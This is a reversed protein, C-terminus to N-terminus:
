DRPPCSDPNCMAPDCNKPFCPRPDRGPSCDHPSCKPTCASGLVDQLRRRFDALEAGNLLAPLGDQVTGIAFQHSFVCPAVEGRSNVAVTGDGCAGCLEPIVDADSQTADGPAARGVGRERDIKINTVGLSQLLQRAREEHGRNEARIVVGARVHLGHALAIQIGAVTRSFSGGRKTITDHVDPDDSYFSVAVRAGVRRLSACMTPSLRTANTYVEIFTFGRAHAAELLDLFRPHLTPEGGIFQVGAFGCESLEDLLALWNEFSMSGESSERPGSEAYCHSCELNCRNSLELWAFRPKAAADRVGPRDVLVTNM